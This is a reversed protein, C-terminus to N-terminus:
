KSQESTSTSEFQCQCESKSENVFYALSFQIRFFCCAINTLERRFPLSYSVDKRFMSYPLFHAEPLLSFRFVYALSIDM